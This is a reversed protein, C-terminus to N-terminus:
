ATLHKVGNTAIVPLNLSRAIRIATQNRAEEARNQHRQLEVYVSPRGEAEGGRMLAAALAGEDGGTLCVLGTAYEALDDETASRNIAVLVSRIRIM